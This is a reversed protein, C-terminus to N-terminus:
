ENTYFSAGVFITGVPLFFIYLLGKWDNYFITGLYLSFFLMILFPPIYILAWWSHTLITIFLPFFIFFATMWRGAFLSNKQIEFAEEKPLYEPQVQPDIFL